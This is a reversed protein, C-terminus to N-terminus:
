WFPHQSKSCRQCIRLYREKRPVCKAYGCLRQIRARHVKPVVARIGSPHGVCYRRAQELGQKAQGELEKEDRVLKWETLVLADAAGRVRDDVSLKDGMVLDTREGEASAKFAWIGHLLLHVAGLKECAIEGEAFAIQWREATEPDAIISRQLHTFARVVLGRGVIDIDGLLYDFEARFSALLTIVGQIGPLGTAKTLREEYKQVFRGLRKFAEAPIESKFNGGFKNVDSVVSRANGLLEDTMAYADNEGTRISLLLFKAARLLGEIRASLANWETKWM